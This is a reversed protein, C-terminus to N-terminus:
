GSVDIFNEECLFPNASGVATRTMPIREIEIAAPKVSTL